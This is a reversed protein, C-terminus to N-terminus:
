MSRMWCDRGSWVRTMTRARRVIRAIRRADVRRSRFCSAPRCAIRTLLITELEDFLAKGQIQILSTRNFARLEELVARRCMLLEFRNGLAYAYPGDIRFYKRM